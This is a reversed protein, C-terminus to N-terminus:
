RIHSKLRSTCLFDFASRTGAANHLPRQKPQKLAVGGALVHGITHTMNELAHQMNIIILM